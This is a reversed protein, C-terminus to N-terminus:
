SEIFEGEIYSLLSLLVLRLKNSRKTPTPDGKDKELSVM